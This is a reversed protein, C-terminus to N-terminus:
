YDPCLCSPPSHMPLCTAMNVAASLEIWDPIRSASIYFNTSTITATVQTGEERGNM